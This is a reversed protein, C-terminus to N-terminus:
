EYIGVQVVTSMGPTYHGAILQREEGAKLGGEVLVRFTIGGCFLDEEAYKYYIYFSSTIDDDSINRVTLSNEGGTIGIRDEHLAMPTEFLATSVLAAETLAGSASRRSTELLMARGGVPLNTLRFHYETDGCLAAIDALQVDRDGENSVVIMLVDEVRENSGDEVYGGTYTGVQTIYLGFGLGIPEDEPIQTAETSDSPEQQIQIPQETVPDTQGAPEIVQGTVPNTQIPIMETQGPQPVAPGSGSSQGGGIVAAATLVAAAVILLLLGIGYEKKSNRKM